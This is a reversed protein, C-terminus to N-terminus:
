RALTEVRVAVYNRLYEFGKCDLRKTPIEWGSKAGSWPYVLATGAKEDYRLCYPAFGRNPQRLEPFNTVIFEIGSTKLLQSIEAILVKKTM